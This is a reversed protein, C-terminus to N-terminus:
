AKFSISVLGVPRVRINRKLILNVISQAIKLRWKLQDANDEM